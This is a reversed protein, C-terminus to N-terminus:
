REDYHIRRNSDDRGDRKRRINIQSVRLRERPFMNGNNKRWARKKWLVTCAFFFHFALYLKALWLARKERFFIGRKGEVAARQLYVQWKGELEAMEPIVRTWCLRRLWLTIQSDSITLFRPPFMSERERHLCPMCFTSFPLLLQLRRRGM